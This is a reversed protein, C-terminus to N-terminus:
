GVLVVDLWTQNASCVYSSSSSGHTVIYNVGATLDLYFSGCSTTLGGGYGNSLVLKSSQVTTSTDYNTLYWHVYSIAANVRVAGSFHYLGSVPVTFTYNSTNWSIGRSSLVTDYPVADGSSITKDSGNKVLAYPINPRTVYGSGDITLADTGATNQINDVKLISVM